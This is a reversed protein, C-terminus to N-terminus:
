LAAASGNKALDGFGAAVVIKPQQDRMASLQAGCLDRSQGTRRLDFGIHRLPGHHRTRGRRDRMAPEVRHQVRERGPQGQQDHRDGEFLARDRGTDHPAPSADRDGAM